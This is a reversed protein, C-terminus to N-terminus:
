DVEVIRMSTRGQLSNARSRYDILGDERGLMIYLGPVGVRGFTPDLPVWRGASGARGRDKLAVPALPDEVFVEAWAHFQFGSGDHVLGLVQRAPLGAARSLAVV